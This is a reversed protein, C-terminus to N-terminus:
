RAKPRAHRILAKPNLNSPALLRDRAKKADRGFNTVLEYTWRHYQANWKRMQDALKLDRLTSTFGALLAHKQTLNRYRGELLQGRVTRYLAEVQRPSLAPDVEITIRSLCPVQSWRAQCKAPEVSPVEDTLVLMVAEAESWHFHHVLSTALRHLRHLTGDARIPVSAVSLDPAPYRLHKKTLTTCHIEGNVSFRFRGKDDIAPMSAPPLPVEDAWITPTGDTAAKQLVWEQVETIPVPQDALHEKRFERVDPRARAHEAVLLSLAYKRAGPAGHELKVPKVKADSGFTRRAEVVNLVIEAIDEGSTGEIWRQERAYQWELDTLASRGEQRLGQDVRRRLEVPTIM